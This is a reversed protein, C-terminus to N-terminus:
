KSPLCTVAAEATLLLFTFSEQLYLSVTDDNHSLYGISVDQGIQLDFDGGRTTMVFAGHTAPAWIIKDEVLRKVHEIVPYGEDSSEALATYLDADLLVAYPGNVGALRLTTLAQAIVNAYERVADPLTMAPNSIGLGQHTPFARQPRKRHLPEDQRKGQQQERLSRLGLGEM